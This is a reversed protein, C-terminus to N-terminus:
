LRYPSTKAQLQTARTIMMTTQPTPRRLTCILGSHRGEYDRERIRVVREEAEEGRGSEAPPLSHSSAPPSSHLVNLCISSIGHETSCSAIAVRLPAMM